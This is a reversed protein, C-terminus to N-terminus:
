RAEERSNEPASETSRSGSQMALLMQYLEQMSPCYPEFGHSINWDAARCIMPKFEINSVTIGSRVVIGVSGSNVPTGNGDDYRDNGYQIRFTNNGGGEPCGSGFLNFFKTQSGYLDIWSDGTGDNTGNATVTMDSNVTFAIGRRTYVNGSWTGATNLAKISEITIDLRNKAGSDVLNVLAAEHKDDAATRASTESSLAADLQTVANGLLADGEQRSVAEGSVLGQVQADTLDHLARHFAEHVQAETLGTNIKRDAM